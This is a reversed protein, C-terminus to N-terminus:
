FKAENAKAENGESDFIEVEMEIVRDQSELGTGTERKVNCCLVIVSTTVADVERRRMPDRELLPRQSM